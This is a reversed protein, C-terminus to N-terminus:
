HLRGLVSNLEIPMNLAQKYKEFIKICDEFTDEAEGFIGFQKEVVNEYVHRKLKGRV